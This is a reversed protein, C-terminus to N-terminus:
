KNHTYGDSYVIHEKILHTDERDENKPLHLAFRCERSVVEKEM